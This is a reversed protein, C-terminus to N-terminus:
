KDQVHRAIQDKAAVYINPGFIAMRPMDRPNEFMQIERQFRGRKNWKYIKGADTVVYVNDKEDTAMDWDESGDDPVGKKIWRGQRFGDSPNYEILDRGSTHRVLLKGGAAIVACQVNGGELHYRKRLEGKATYIFVEDALIFFFDDDLWTIIPTGNGTGPAPRWPTDIQWQAQQKGESDFIQVRLSADIVAVLDYNGVAISLPQNFQGAGNGPTAGSAYPSGREGFWQEAVVRGEGGIVLNSTGQPSLRQVRNNGVDAVWLNGVSDSSISLPEGRSLFAGREMGMSGWNPVTSRPTRRLDQYARFFDVTEFLWDRDGDKLAGAAALELYAIANADKLRGLLDFAQEDFQLFQLRYGVPVYREVLALRYEPGRVAHWAIAKFNKSYEDNEKCRAYAADLAEGAAKEAGRLSRSRSVAKDIAAQWSPDPEAGFDFAIEAVHTDAFISGEHVEDVVLKLSRVKSNVAVDRRAFRDGLTVGKEIEGDPGRIILTAEAVRGRGSWEERSGFAGAWISVRQVEVDRGLDVELWEGEGLGPADEAWSTSLLGDFAKAPSHDATSAVRHSSASFRPGASALGPLLLLAVVLVFLRQVVM